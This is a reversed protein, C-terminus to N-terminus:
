LMLLSKRGNRRNRGDNTVSEECVVHVCLCCLVNCTCGCCEFEKTIWGVREGGRCCIKIWRKLTRSLMVCVRSM